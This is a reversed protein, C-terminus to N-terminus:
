VPGAGASMVVIVEFSVGQSEWAAAVPSTWMTANTLAVQTKSLASALILAAMAPRLIIEESEGRPGLPM